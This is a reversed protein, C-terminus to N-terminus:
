TPARVTVTACAAVATRACLRYAGAAAFVHSVTWRGASAPQLSGPKTGDGFDIAVPDRSASDDITLEVTALQGGRVLNPTVTLVPRATITVTTEARFGFLAVVPHYVGRAAYTHAAFGVRENGSIPALFSGGSGDGFDISGLPSDDDFRASRSQDIVQPIVLTFSTTSGVPSVEPSARFSVTLLQQGRLGSPVLAAM